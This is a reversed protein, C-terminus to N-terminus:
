KSGEKQDKVWNILEDKNNFGFCSAAVDEALQRHLKGDYEIIAAREEFLDLLLEPDNMYDPKIM